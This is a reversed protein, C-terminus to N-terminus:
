DGPSRWGTATALDAVADELFRWAAAIRPVHRLARHGALWLEGTPRPPLSAEFGPELRVPALGRSLGLLHGSMVVGVGAAAAALQAEINSTRLVFRDGDVYQRLWQEDPLHELDPGWGIWRAGNLDNLCGLEDAYARSTYPAYTDTGLKRAILDGREPRSARVALDAQRRTLDAYGISADLEIRLRPHREILGPLAPAIFGSAVGPPATIRVTGEPEAEFGAALRGVDHAAREMAEALPVLQEAAATPATGDPTREFLTAGLDGELAEIRRGVTSANVGLQEAAASLSGTRALALLFRLDDWRYPNQM